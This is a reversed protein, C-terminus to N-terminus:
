HLKTVLNLFPMGQFTVTHRLKLSPATQKFVSTFTMFLCAFHEPELAIRSRLTLKEPVTPSGQPPRHVLCQFLLWLPKLSSLPQIPDGATACYTPSPSLSVLKM